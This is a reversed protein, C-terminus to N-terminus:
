MEPFAGCVHRQPTDGHAVGGEAGNWVGVVMQAGLDETSEERQEVANRPSLVRGDNTGGGLELCSCPLGCEARRKESSGANRVVVGNNRRACGWASKKQLGHPQPVM